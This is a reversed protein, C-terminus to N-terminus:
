LQGFIGATGFERVRVQTSIAQQAPPESTIAAYFWIAGETGSPKVSAYM